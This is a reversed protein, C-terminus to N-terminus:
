ATEGAPHSATESRRALRDLLDGLVVIEDDSLVSLFQMEARISVDICRKFVRRGEKTLYARVIRGHGPDSRREVLGRQELATLALQSAQPTVLLRRALEAGSLGPEADLRNLVGIQTPTVDFAHTAESVARHGNHFARKLLWMIHQSTDPARREPMSPAKGSDGGPRDPGFLYILM